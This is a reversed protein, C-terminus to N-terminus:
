RSARPAAVGSCEARRTRSYPSGRSHTRVSCRPSGTTRAARSSDIGSVARILFRPFRV